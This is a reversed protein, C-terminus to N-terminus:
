ILCSLISRACSNVQEGLHLLFTIHHAPLWRYNKPADLDMGDPLLMIRHLHCERYFRAGEEAQFSEHLITFSSPDFFEDYLFPRHLKKSSTYNGPTFQVTPGLQVTTKNGVEAKAQMLLEKGHPGNRVLLGIIGSSPNEIIPQCWSGVERTESKVRLGVVRFFRGELHSFFGKADLHWEKLDNLGTHRSMVHKRARCDDLWQMTATIDSLTGSDTGLWELAGALVQEDLLGRRTGATIAHNSVVRGLAAPVNVGPFVLSSLISRTCANVLNDNRLLSAIQRLTLWIFGAPLEIPFDDGALVIMNRNSKFLFRGGDETQLRAFLLQEHSPSLFQQLFPITSGGHVKTYNSYTAQVTPSLQVSGINGPEEKAQLCFHLVGDITKALIGLIGIEPQEIIPQDWEIERTDTRHKAHIGLVSFFRGTKHSLNGNYRDMVWGEVRDLPILMTNLTSAKRVRHVWEDVFTDDHLAHFASRSVFADFEVDPRVAPSPFCVGKPSGAALVASRLSSLRSAPPKKM